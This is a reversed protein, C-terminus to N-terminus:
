HGARALARRLAACQLQDTLGADKILKDADIKAVDADAGYGARSLANTIAPDLTRRGPDRSAELRAKELDSIKQEAAELKDAAAKAADASAKLAADSAALKDAIDKTAKDIAERVAKEAEAKDESGRLPWDHDRHITPLIGTVASARLSKALGRALVVHGYTQHGGIGDTAMADAAAELAKAHPEVLACLKDNASLKEAKLKEVEAASAAAAAKAEDVSAKLAETDKSFSATLKAILAELEEKTMDIEEKSESAKLSTSKYAADKAKLIAAGSFTLATIRLFEGEVKGRFRCAELSFGLEKQAAKIEAYEKPFDEAYLGGKIRFDSGDVFAESVLGLKKQPDHGDMRPALNVGMRLITPIAAEAVAKSIIIRRGRAGGPPGDSPTDIKFLVGEFPKFNPHDDPLDSVALSMCALVDSVDSSTLDIDEAGDIDGEIEVASIEDALADDAEVLAAAALIEEVENAQVSEWDSTDIGLEHARRLIRKRAAARDDKSIDKVRSLLQWALRVHTEDNIPVRREAPLAYDSDPLAAKQKRTLKAM